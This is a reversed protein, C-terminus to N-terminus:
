QGSSRQQGGRARCEASLWTGLTTPSSPLTYPLYLGEAPTLQGSEDSRGRPRTQVFVVRRGSLTSVVIDDIEAWRVLRNTTHIGTDDVVIEFRRRIPPLTPICILVVGWVLGVAAFLRLGVSEELLVFYVGAVVLAVGGLRFLWSSRASLGLTVSGERALQESWMRAQQRGADDVAADLWTETNQRV